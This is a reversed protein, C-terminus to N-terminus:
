LLSPSLFLIKFLSHFNCGQTTTAITTTVGELDLLIDCTLVVFLCVRVCVSECMVESLPIERGAYWGASAFVSVPLGASVCTNVTLCVSMMCVPLGFALLDGSLFVGHLRGATQVFLCVFVFSLYLPSLMILHGSIHTHAHTHTATAQGM